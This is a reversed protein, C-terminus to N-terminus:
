AGVKDMTFFKPLKEPWTRKHRWSLLLFTCMFTPAIYKRDQTNVGSDIIM